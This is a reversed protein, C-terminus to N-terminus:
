KVEGTKDPEVTVDATVGASRKANSKRAEALRREFELETALRQEEANLAEVRVDNAREAEFKERDARLKALEKQQKDIEKRRAELDKDSTAM